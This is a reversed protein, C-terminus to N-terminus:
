LLLAKRDLGSKIENLRLTRKKGVFEMTEHTFFFLFDLCIHESFHHHATKSLFLM